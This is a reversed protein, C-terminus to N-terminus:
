ADSRLIPGIAAMSVAFRLLESSLQARVLKCLQVIADPNARATEGQRELGCWQRLIARKASRKLAKRVDGIVHYLRGREDPIWATFMEEGTLFPVSRCRM